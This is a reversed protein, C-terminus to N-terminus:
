QPAPELTAEFRLAPAEDSRGEFVYSSGKRKGTLTLNVASFDGFVSLKTMDHQRVHLRVEIRKETGSIEGVYYMGSDGGYVSQGDVFIVGSAGDLPTRFKAVYLGHDVVM